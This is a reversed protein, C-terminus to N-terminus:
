HVKQGWAGGCCMSGWWTVFSHEADKTKVDVASLFNFAIKCVISHHNGPVKGGWEGGTNNGFLIKCPLERRCRKFWKLCWQLSKWGFCAGLRIADNPDARISLILGKIEISLPKTFLPFVFPRVLSACRQQRASYLPGKWHQKHADRKLFMYLDCGTKGTAGTIYPHHCPPHGEGKKYTGTSQNGCLKGGM